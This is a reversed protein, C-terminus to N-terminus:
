EDFLIGAVEAELQPKSQSLVAFFSCNIEMGGKRLVFGGGMERTETAMRLAGLRGIQKMRANIEQMFAPTFLHADESSPIIEEDGGASEMLLRQMYAAREEDPMKRMRGLADEFAQDIVERKAALMLKRQDLEAMRLMRSRLEVCDLRMQNMVQERKASMEDAAKKRTLAARENAASLTAAAAARADELIKQTIPEANM